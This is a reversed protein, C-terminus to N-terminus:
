AKTLGLPRDDDRSSGDFDGKFVTVPIGNLMGVRAFAVGGRKDRFVIKKCTAKSPDVPVFNDTMYYVTAPRGNVIKDEIM